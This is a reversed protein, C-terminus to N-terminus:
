ISPEWNETCEFIIIANVQDSYAVVGKVYSPQSTIPSHAKPFCNTYMKTQMITLKRALRM